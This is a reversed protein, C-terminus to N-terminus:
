TVNFLDYGDATKGSLGMGRLDPVIITFQRALAPAVDRWILNSQPYGHLLLLAPGQGAIAVYIDVGNARVTRTAFGRKAWVRDVDQRLTAQISAAAPPPPTTQAFTQVAGGGLAAALALVILTRQM